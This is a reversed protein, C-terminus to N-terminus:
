QPVLAVFHINGSAATFTTDFCNVVFGGSTPAGDLYAVAATTGGAQIVTVVVIPATSLPAFAVTYVGTAGPTVTFGSGAVVTGDGAFAGTVGNVIRGAGMPSITNLWVPVTGLGSPSADYGSGATAAKAFDPEAM